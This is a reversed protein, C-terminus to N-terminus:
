VAAPPTALATLAQKGRARSAQAVAEELGGDSQRLQRIEQARWEHVLTGELLLLARDAYREVLDLSHTALLLGCRRAAVRERLHKKLVLASAPDLGNFSEDLVILQPEGILALLVALKQRMGLSYHDVLQPLRESMELGSALLLVDEDVCALGKAAAFIQLCELGTLLGPISEPPCAFGLLQKAPKADKTLLQGCVTIEGRLPAQAGVICSLLTTKGAGNPGLLALWEGRAVTLDLEHLIIHRGYGASLRTVHLVQQLATAEPTDM